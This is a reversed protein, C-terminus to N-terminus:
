PYFDMVLPLVYITPCAHTSTVLSYFALAFPRLLECCKQTSNALLTADTQIPKFTQGTEFMRLLHWCQQPEMCVSAAHQAWCLQTNNALTADTQMTNYKWKM